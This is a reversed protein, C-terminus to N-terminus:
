DGISEMALKNIKEMNLGTKLCHFISRHLEKLVYVVDNKNIHHAESGEFYENLPNFGLIRRNCNKKRVVMKGEETQHYQNEYVRRHEQNNERWQKMYQKIHEKYEPNDKHWQESQKDM